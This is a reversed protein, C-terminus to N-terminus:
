QREGAVLIDFRVYFERPGTTIRFADILPDPVPVFIRKRTILTTTPFFGGSTATSELPERLEIDYCLSLRGSAQTFIYIVGHGAWMIRTTHPTRFFDANMKILRDLLGLLMSFNNLQPYKQDTELIKM